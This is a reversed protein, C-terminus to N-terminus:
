VRHSCVHGWLYSRWMMHEYLASEASDGTVFNDGSSDSGLTTAMHQHFLSSNSRDTRDSRNNGASTGDTIGSSCFELQLPTSLSGGFDTAMQCTNGCDELLM